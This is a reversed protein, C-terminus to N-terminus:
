YSMRSFYSATIAPVSVSSAAVLSSAASPELRAVAMRAADVAPALTSNTDTGLRFYEGLIWLAFAALVSFPVGDVQFVLLRSEPGAEFRGLGLFRKLDAVPIVAGRLNVVGVVAPPSKPMKVISGPVLLIEKVHGIEMGYIERGMTFVVCKVRSGM